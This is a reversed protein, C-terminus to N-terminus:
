FSGKLNRLKQQAEKILINNVEKYARKVIDQNQCNEIIGKLLLKAEKLKGEKKLVQALRLKIEYDRPYELLYLRYYSEASSLAGKSYYYNALELLAEKYAPYLDIAKKLAYEYQKYNGLKKYVHALLLYAKYREEYTDLNAAKLLWKVAQKYNGMQYYLLGLDFLVDGYDPKLQLAKLFSKEAKRYSKAFLYAEGLNKWLVPDNPTLETARKFNAIAKAYNSEAMAALGLKNFFDAAKQKAEKLPINASSGIGGNPPQPREKVVGCSSFFGVIVVIPFTQIKRFMVPTINKWRAFRLPTEKVKGDFTPM